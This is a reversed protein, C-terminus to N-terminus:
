MKTEITCFSQSRIKLQLPRMNGPFGKTRTEEKEVWMKIEGVETVGIKLLKENCSNKLSVRFPVEQGSEWIIQSSDTSLHEIASEPPSIFLPSQDGGYLLM